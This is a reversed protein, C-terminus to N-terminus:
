KKKRLLFFLCALGSFSIVGVLGKVFMFPVYPTPKVAIKPDHQRSNGDTDEWLISYNYESDYDADWRIEATWEGGQEHPPTSFIDASNAKEEIKISAVNSKEKISWIIFDKKDAKTRGGDSLKLTGDPYGKNIKIEKIQPM